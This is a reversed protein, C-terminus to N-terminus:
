IVPEAESPVASGTILAKIEQSVRQLKASDDVNLGALLKEIQPRLGAEQLFEFYTHSTVIFGPPVPIKAKTLEGLNAGKGGTLGVDDKDVERFWVGRKM